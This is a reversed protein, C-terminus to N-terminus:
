GKKLKKFIYKNFFLFFPIQFIIPLFFWFNIFFSFMACFYLVSYISLYIFNNKQFKTKKYFYSTIMGAFFGILIVEYIGMDGYISALVTSVVLYYTINEEIFKKLTINHAKGFGLNANNFIYTIKSDLKSLNRLEDTPSNDILYIKINFNAILVGEITKKIKDKNDRYLVISCYLKKM